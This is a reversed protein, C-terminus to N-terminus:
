PTLWNALADPTSGADNRLAAHLAALVEPRETFVRVVAASATRRRVVALGAWAGPDEGAAIRRAYGTAALEHEGRIFAADAPDIRWQSDTLHHRLLGPDRGRLAMLYSRVNAAALPLPGPRLQVPVVDFPMPPTQHALWADALRAIVDAEPVLHAVRWQVEHDVNLDTVQEEAEAPLMEELWSALEARIGTVLQQGAPALLGSEDLAALGRAVMVRMRGFEVAARNRQGPPGARYRDHWFRGMGYHAFTGHLFTGAPRPDERWPAYVLAGGSDEALPQIDTLAGLVAHHAEHVLAEALSLSDVSLSLAVAGFTSVETSGASRTPAPPALPVLTQVTGAVLAALPPHDAALTAWARSLLQRWASLDEGRLRLRQSGYRDLYPDGDDLLVDLRLGSASLVIRHVPSWHQPSDPMAPRGTTLIRVTSARSQVLCRHGEQWALGWEWPSAAALLATGLAPISARGDRLPIELRFPYSARVAATCAFLALHGLDTALPRDERDEDYLLRGLCDDAWAGFQPVALVDAVVGPTIAEIDRLLRYPRLLAREYDGPIAPKAMRMISALLAKHKGLEARRLLPLASLLEEGSISSIVAPRV